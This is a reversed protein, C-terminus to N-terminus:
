SIKYFQQLKQFFNHCSLRQYCFITNITGPLMIVDYLSNFRSFSVFLMSLFNLFSYTTANGNMMSQQLTEKISPM